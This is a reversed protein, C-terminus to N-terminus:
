DNDTDIPLGGGERAPGGEIIEIGPPLRLRILREIDSPDKVIRTFNFVV